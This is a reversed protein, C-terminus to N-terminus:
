GRNQALFRRKWRVALLGSLSAGLALMQGPEPVATTAQFTGNGTPNDVTFAGKSTTFTEDEQSNNLPGSTPALPSALNYTGFINNIVFAVPVSTVYDSFGGDGFNPNSVVTLHDTFTATGLGSINVSASGQQLYDGNQTTILSTDTTMTLSILQGTFSTGGLSGSGTFTETYTISSASLVGSLAITLLLTKRM